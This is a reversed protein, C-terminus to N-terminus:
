GLCERVKDALAAGLAHHSDAEWHVGDIPSVTAVTGADFFACDLREATAAVQRTLREQRKEAGEFVEVLSGEERVPVPAVLLVPLDPVESRATTILRELSRAIEVSLVPFRHKLDNTGLMLVMLDLPVHSQLVAPLVTLGNRMGGEILDDHVTTRGPLGEDIVRHEAGLARAMVEPWRDEPGYRQSMGLVHIPKTGHTNSDGYCLITAM